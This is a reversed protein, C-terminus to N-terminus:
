MVRENYVGAGSDTELIRKKVFEEMSIPEQTLVFNDEDEELQAARKNQLDVAAKGAADLPPAKPGDSGGSIAQFGAAKDLVDM